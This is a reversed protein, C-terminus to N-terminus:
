TQLRTKLGGFLREIDEAQQLNIEIIGRGIVRYIGRRLVWLPLGTDPPTLWSQGLERAMEVLNGRGIIPVPLRSPGRSLETLADRLLLGVREPSLKVMRLSARRGLARARLPNAAVWNMESTAGTVSVRAMLQGRRYPGDSKKLRIMRFPALRSVTEDVFDMPGSYGTQLVCKGMALADFIPLGWGESGHLSVYCDCAAMLGMMSDNSYFDDVWTIGPHGRFPNLAKKLDKRIEDFHVCKVVLHIQGKKKHRSDTRAATFAKLVALPNKRDPFSRGDFTFYFVFDDTRVGLRKRWAHRFQSAPMARNVCYPVVRVPIRTAKRVSAATFSSPVVIGSLWALAPRWDIPFEPMEWNWYAINKRFREDLRRDFWEMTREPNFHLLTLDHPLRNNSKFDCVLHPMGSAKLAMEVRKAAM